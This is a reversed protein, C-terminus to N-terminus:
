MLRVSPMGLKDLRVAGRILTPLESSSYSANCKLKCALSALSDAVTNGERFIHNITDAPNLLSWIERVYSLISWPCTAKRKIINVITQSDCEIIAATSGTIKIYKMGDLLAPAEAIISNSFGYYHSFALIVNGLHDRIVGGGGSEGNAKSAGDTNLKLSPWPPCFWKIAIARLQKPKAFQIGLADLIRIHEQNAEPLSSIQCIEKVKYRIKHLLGQCSTKSDDYKDSNRACWIEWMSVGVAALGFLGFMSKKQTSCLNNLIMSTASNEEIQLGKSRFYTWIYSAWDGFIFLHNYNETQPTKCCCCKSCIPIGIKQINCDLPLCKNIIKWLHISIKSPLWPSWISTWQNFTQTEQNRSIAKQTSSVSCNGSSSLSWAPLDHEQNLKVHKLATSIEETFFRNPWNTDESNMQVIFDRVSLMPNITNDALAFDALTHQGIWRDYWFSTRSGDGIIVRKHQIILNKATIWRRREFGKMNTFQVQILPCNRIYKARFYEAWLSNSHLAQWLMKVSLPTEM